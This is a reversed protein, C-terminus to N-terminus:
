KGRADEKAQAIAHVDEDPLPGRDAILDLDFVADAGQQWGSLRDLQTNLEHLHNPTVQNHTRSAVSAVTRVMSDIQSRLKVNVDKVLKFRHEAHRFQYQYNLATGTGRQITDAYGNIEPMENRLWAKFEDFSELAGPTQARILNCLNKYTDREKSMELLDAEVRRRFGQENGYEITLKDNERQLKEM